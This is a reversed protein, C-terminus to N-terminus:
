AAHSKPSLFASPCLLKYDISTLEHAQQMRGHKAPFEAQQEWKRYGAASVGFHRAAAAYSGDFYDNRVKEVINGM